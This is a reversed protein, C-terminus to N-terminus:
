TTTSNDSQYKLLYSIYIYIYVEGTIHYKININDNKLPSKVVQPNNYIWSHLKDIKKQLKGEM